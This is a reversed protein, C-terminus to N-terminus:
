PIKRKARVLEVVEKGSMHEISLEIICTAKHEKEIAQLRHSETQDPSYKEILISEEVALAQQKRRMERFM